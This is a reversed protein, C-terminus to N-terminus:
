SEAKHTVRPDDGGHRRRRRPVDGPAFLTASFPNGSATILCPSSISSWLRKHVSVSTLARTFQTASAIVMSATHSQALADLERLLSHREPAKGAHAHCLWSKATLGLRGRSDLVFQVLRTDPGYKSRKEREMAAAAAGPTAARQLEIGVSASLSDVVAVDLFDTTRGPITVTSDRWRGTAGWRKQLTDRVSDHRRVFGGGCECIAGHHGEPDLAAGCVEGTPKRNKCTAGTPCCNVGFRRLTAVAFQADAMRHEERTPAPVFKGGDEAAENLAIKQRRGLTQYLRQRRQAQMAKTREQQRGRLNRQRDAQWLAPVRSGTGAVPEATAQEVDAILKPHQRRLHEVTTTGLEKHVEQLAALTGALFAAPARDLVGGAAFGGASLPLQLQVRMAPTLQGDDWAAAVTREWVKATVAEFRARGEESVLTSRMVYQPKTAALTRSLVQATQLSLGHRQLDLIRDVDRAVKGIIVDFESEQTGLVPMSDGTREAQNGLITMSDVHHKQLHGPLQHRQAGFIHIKSPHLETGALAATEGFAKIVGGADAMNCVSYVDDMFAKQTTKAQFATKGGGAQEWLLPTVGAYLRTVLANLEPAVKKMAERMVAMSMSGFANKLDLAVIVKGPCGALLASETHYLKETGGAVGIAHQVPELLARIEPTIARALSKLVIRRLVATIVLPRLGGKPKAPTLLRGVRCASYAVAPALGRAWAVGIQSTLRRIEQCSGMCHEFRSGDMAPRAKKAMHKIDRQIQDQLKAWPLSDPAV